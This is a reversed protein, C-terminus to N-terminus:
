GPMEGTDLDLNARGGFGAPWEAACAAMAKLAREKLEAALAPEPRWTAAIAAADRFTSFPALLSGVGRWVPRM